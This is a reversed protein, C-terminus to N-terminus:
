STISSWSWFRSVYDFDDIMQSTVQASLAAAYRMSRVEGEPLCEEPRRDELGCRLLDQLTTNFQSFKETRIMKAAGIAGAWVVDEMFLQGLGCAGFDADGVDEGISAITTANPYRAGFRGRRPYIRQRSITYNSNENGMVPNPLHYTKGNNSLEGTITPEAGTSM